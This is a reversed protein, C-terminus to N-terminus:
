AIIVKINRNNTSNICSNSNNNVFHNSCDNNYLNDSNNRTELITRISIASNVNIIIEKDTAYIKRWTIIILTM